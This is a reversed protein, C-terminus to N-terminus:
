DFRDVIEVDQRKKLYEIIQDPVSENPNLSFPKM